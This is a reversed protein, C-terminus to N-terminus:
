RLRAKRELFHLIKRRCVHTTATRMPPRVADQPLWVERLFKGSLGAGRGFAARVDYGELWARSKISLALVAGNDLFPVDSAPLPQESGHKVTLRRSAVWGNSGRSFNDSAEHM